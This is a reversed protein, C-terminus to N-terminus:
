SLECKLHLKIKWCLNSTNEYILRAGDESLVQNSRDLEVESFNTIFM